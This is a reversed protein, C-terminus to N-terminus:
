VYDTVGLRMCEVAKLDGLTGTILIVPIDADFKIVETLADIGTWDCMRYDSLVMDVKGSTLAEAFAVRTAVTEIHLDLGSTKLARLTLALDAPDDEAILLRLTSPELLPPFPTTSTM